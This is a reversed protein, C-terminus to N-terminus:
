DEARRFGKVVLGYIWLLFCLSRVRDFGVKILPLISVDDGDLRFHLSFIIYILDSLFFFSVLIKSLQM